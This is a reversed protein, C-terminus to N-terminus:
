FYYQNYYKLDVEEKNLKFEMKDIKYFGEELSPEKYQKNFMRYVITPIIDTKGNTLINRYINNHRSLEESTNFQICRCQIGYEKAVSLYKSRTTISSNTNDIVVSKGNKLALILAKICKEATKLTDQNIYEYEIHKKIIYNTVYYSKGSGPYGVTIIIEQHNPIFKDYIGINYNILVPKYVTVLTDLKSIIDKKQCSYIFNDRHIFKVGINTAFKLDNEDFDASLKIKDNYVSKIIRKKLGGADGCYYSKNIDCKVYTDWLKTRPKRYMDDKISCLILIPMDLKIVINELKTMWEKQEKPTKLGKQNTVIVLTYNEKYIKKLKDVVDIEYFEWDDENNPFKKGCKPKIITHDLDSAWIKSETTLNIDRYIGIIYKSEITWKITM